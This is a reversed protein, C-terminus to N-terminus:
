SEAVMQPFATAGAIIRVIARPVIVAVVILLLLLSSCPLMHQGPQGFRNDFTEQVGAAPFREQHPDVLLELVFVVVGFCRSAAEGVLFADADGKVQYLLIPFPGLRSPGRHLLDM